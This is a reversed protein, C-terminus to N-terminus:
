ILQVGATRRAGAVEDNRMASAIAMKNRVHKLAETVVLVVLTGWFATGTYDSLLAQFQDSVAVGGLATIAIGFVSFLFSKTRVNWLESM